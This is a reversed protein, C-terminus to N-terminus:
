RKKEGLAIIIKFSTQINKVITGGFTWVLLGGYPHLTFTM